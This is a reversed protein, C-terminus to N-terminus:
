RLEDSGTPPQPGAEQATVETRVYKAEFNIAPFDRINPNDPNPLQLRMHATAVLKRRVYHEPVGFTLPTGPRPDATKDAMFAIANWTIVGLKNVAQQDSCLLDPIDAIRGGHVLTHRIRQLVEFIEDPQQPHVRRILELIAEGRYRRHTPHNQCQECYLPTRCRPCLSPVREAGKVAEAVIELAFWFYSFQQELVGEQVAIRHWRMAAQHAPGAQMALIREATGIYDANLEPEALDWEPTETYIMADRDSRGSTWDVLRKLTRPVFKRNTTFALVNLAEGLWKYALEDIEGREDPFGLETEFIVQASLVAEPVAHEAETANSLTLSFRGAPDKLTLPATGAPLCLDSDLIFDALCRMGFGMLLDPMQSASFVM